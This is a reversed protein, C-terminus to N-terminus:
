TSRQELRLNQDDMLLPGSQTRIVFRNPSHLYEQLAFSGVPTEIQMDVACPMSSCYEGLKRLQKLTTPTDCRIVIDLDSEENVVDTLSALEFGVSGTPGWLFPANRWCRELEQLAAFAPLDRTFVRTHLSEPEHVEVIQREDLWAAHRQNREAGRVGVPVMGDWSYARRVVVFPSRDLQERLLEGMDASAERLLKDIYAPQIRILDHPRLKRM